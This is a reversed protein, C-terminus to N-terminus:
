AYLGSTIEPKTRADPPIAGFLATCRACRNAEHDPAPPFGSFRMSWSAGSTCRMFKGCCDCKPM